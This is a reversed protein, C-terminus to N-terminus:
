RPAPSGAAAVGAALEAAALAEALREVAARYDTGATVRCYEAERMARTLAATEATRVDTMAPFDIAQAPDLEYRSWQALIHAHLAADDAFGARRRPEAAHIRAIKHISALTGGATVIAVLVMILGAPPWHVAPVLVAPLIVVLGAFLDWFITDPEPGRGYTLKRHLVFTTAATALVLAVGWPLMMAPM